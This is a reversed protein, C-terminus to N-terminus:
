LINWETGNWFLTYAGYNQGIIIQNLGDITIGSQPIISISSYNPGGADGNADKIIIEQGLLPSSSLNVQTISSITKKILIRRNSNNLNVSTGSTVILPEFVNPESWKLSLADSTTLIQGSQGISFRTWIAPAGSGTIIDGVEVIDPETDPHISSLLSHPGVGSVDVISTPKWQSGDYELINGIVPTDSALPFGRLAIVVLNDIVGSVDGRAEEWDVRGISGDTNLTWFLGSPGM